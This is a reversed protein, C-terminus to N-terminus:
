GLAEGSGADFFHIDDANMAVGLRDGVRYEEEPQAMARLALTGAAVHVVSRAGLLEVLVVEGVILAEDSDPDVVRLLEPRLGLTLAPARDGNQAPAKIHSADFVGEKGDPTRVVACGRGARSEYQAPIFNILVSGVFNAVYETAPRDYIEDPTGYQQLAGDKLVAIRDAISMAESQDHTVYIMTQGIEKQIRRLEARMGVRLIADLHALPEDLLFVSPEVIMSRGLAVRQMESVRLRGAKRNLHAAVGVTAAMRRVKADLSSGSDSRRARLGYALNDFVTMHTFIAYNQFVFGVDRDGPKVGSMARGDFYIEGSTPRDLGAILNMTTTKGCGSPGLFAVLSESSIDLSLGGVATVSGFRKTVEDLVITAM